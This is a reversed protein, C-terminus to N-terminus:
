PEDEPRRRGARPYQTLRVPWWWPAAQLERRATGLTFTLALAALLVYDWPRGFTPRALAAREFLIAFFLAVCIWGASTWPSGTRLIFLTRLSLLIGFGDVALDLATTATM